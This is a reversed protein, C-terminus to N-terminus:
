RGLDGRLFNRGATRTRQMLNLYWRQPRVYTFLNTVPNLAERDPKTPTGEREALNNHAVSTRRADTPVHFASRLFLGAISLDVSLEPWESNTGWVGLAPIPVSCNVMMDNRSCLWVSRM